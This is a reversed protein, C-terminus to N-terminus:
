LPARLRTPTSVLVQLADNEPSGGCGDVLLARSHPQLPLPPDGPRAASAGGNGLRRVARLHRTDGHCRPLPSSLSCPESAATSSHERPQRAPRPRQLPRLSAAFVTHSCHKIPCCSLATQQVGGVGLGSLSRRSPPSKVLEGCEKRPPHRSLQIRDKDELPQRSQTALRNNIIGPSSAAGPRATCLSASPM